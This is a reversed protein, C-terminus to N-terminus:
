NFNSIGAKAVERNIPLTFTTHDTNSTYAKLYFNDNEKVLSNELKDEIYVIDGINDKAWCEPNSFIENLPVNFADFNNNKDLDINSETSTDVIRFNDVLVYNNSSANNVKYELDLNAFDGLKDESLTYTSSLTVWEGSDVNSLDLNTKELQPLWDTGNFIGFSLTGDFEYGLKIDVEFKYTGAKLVNTNCSKTITSSEGNYIPILKGYTNDQDFVVEVKGVGFNAFDAEWVNSLLKNSKFGEFNTRMVDQYSLSKDVFVEIKSSKKSTEKYGIEDTYAEISYNFTGKVAPISYTLVDGLDEVLEDGNYLKYGIASDVKEWSLEYKNFSVNPTKMQILTDKEECNENDCVAEFQGERNKNSSVKEVYNTFSHELKAITEGELLTEDCRSCHTGKEKGETTCTPEVKEDEVEVHGLAKIVEQSVITENCVSCHKGETLGDTTCTADVAKDVTEIHGTKEIKKTESEGCECTRKEEGESLCTAVKSTKWEGFEHTHAKCSTFSLTTFLVLLLTNKKM